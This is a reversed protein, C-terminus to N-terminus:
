GAATQLLRNCVSIAERDQAIRHTRGDVVVRSTHLHPASSMHRRHHLTIRYKVPHVDTPKVSGGNATHPILHGQMPMLKLSCRQLLRRLSKTLM